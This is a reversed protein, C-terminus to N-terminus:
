SGCNGFGGCDFAPSCMPGGVIGIGTDLQQVYSGTSPSQDSTCVPWAMWSVPMASGAAPMFDPSAMPQWVDGGVTAATSVPVICPWTQAPWGVIQLAPLPWGASSGGPMPHQVFHANQQVYGTDHSDGESSSSGGTATTASCHPVTPPTDGWNSPTGYLGRPTLPPSQAPSIINMTMSTKRNSAPSELLHRLRIVSATSQRPSEPAAQATYAVRERGKAGTVTFEKPHQLLLQKLGRGLKKLCAKSGENPAAGLTSLLVSRNPGTGSAAMFDRCEQLIQQVMSAACAEEKEKEAAGDAKRSADVTHLRSNTKPNVQSAMFVEVYRERAGSGADTQISMTAMHLAACARRATDPSNFQVQAFGSPRGSRNFLIRIPPDGGTALQDEFPGLFSEIDGVGAQFPLGRLQVTAHHEQEAEDTTVNSSPSGDRNNEAAPPMELEPMEFQDTGTISPPLSDLPMAQSSTSASSALSSWVPSARVGCLSRDQENDEPLNLHQREPSKPTAQAKSAIRPSEDGGPFVDARLASSSACPAPESSASDGCAEWLTEKEAPRAGPPAVTSLRLTVLDDDSVSFLCAYKALWRRLGGIEKLTQRVEDPVRDDLEAITSPRNGLLVILQSLLSVETTTPVATTDGM